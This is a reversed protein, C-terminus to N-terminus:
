SVAEAALRVRTGARRSRRATERAPVAARELERSALLYRVVNEGTPEATLEQVADAFAAQCPSLAASV